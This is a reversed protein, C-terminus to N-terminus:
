STVMQQILQLQLQALMDGARARKILQEVIADTTGGTDGGMISMAVQSVSIPMDGIVAVPTSIAQEIAPQQTGGPAIPTEYIGGPGEYHPM